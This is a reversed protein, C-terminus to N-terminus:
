YENLLTSLHQCKITHLSYKSFIFESSLGVGLLMHKKWNERRESAQPGKRRERVQEIERGSGGLFWRSQGPRTGSVMTTTAPFLSRRSTGIEPSGAGVTIQCFVMVFTSHAGGGVGGDTFHACPGLM